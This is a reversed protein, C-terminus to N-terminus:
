ACLALLLSLVKYKHVLVDGITLLFTRHTIELGM